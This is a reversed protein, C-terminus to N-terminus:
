HRSLQIAKVILLAAGALLYSRLALMGLKTGPKWTVPELLALPPMRWTTKDTGTLTISTHKGGDPAPRQRRATVRLAAWALLGATTLGAALWATLTVVELDPFLTTAM